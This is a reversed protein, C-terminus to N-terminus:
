GAAARPAATLDWSAQRRTREREFVARASAEDDYVPIRSLHGTRRLSAEVPSGVDALVALSRRNWKARSRAAVFAPLCDDDFATVEHADVLLDEDAATTDVAVVLATRLPDLDALTIDGSLTIVATDLASINV